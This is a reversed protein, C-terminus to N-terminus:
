ERPPAGSTHVPADSAGLARGNRIRWDYPTSTEGATRTIEALRRMASREPCAARAERSLIVFSQSVDVGYSQRMRVPLARPALSAGTCV